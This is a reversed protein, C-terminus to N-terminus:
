TVVRDVVIGRHLVLLVSYRQIEAAVAVVYGPVIRTVVAPITDVQVSLM